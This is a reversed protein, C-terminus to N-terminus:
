ISRQSLQRTFILNWVFGSPQMATPDFELESLLVVDMLWWEAQRQRSDGGQAIQM